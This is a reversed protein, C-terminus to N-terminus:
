NYIVAIYKNSVIQTINEWLPKNNYITKNKADSKDIFRVMQLLTDVFDVKLTYLSEKNIYLVTSKELMLTFLLGKELNKIGYSFAIIGKEQAIKAAKKIYKDSNLVYIASAETQNSFDLFDVLLIKYKYKDFYGNYNSDIINKIELATYFDSKDYIITYIVKGNILKDEIKKDLLMIKPFISAQAKLLLEDYNYGYALNTLILYLFIIKKM